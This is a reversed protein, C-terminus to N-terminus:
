SLACLYFFNNQCTGTSFNLKLTSSIIALNPLLTMSPFNTTKNVKDSAHDSCDPVTNKASYSTSSLHSVTVSANSECEIEVNTKVIGLIKLYKVESGRDHLWDGVHMIVDEPPNEEQKRPKVILAGFLGDM